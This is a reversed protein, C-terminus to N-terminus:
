PTLISWGFFLYIESSLRQLGYSKSSTKVGQRHFFNIYKIPLHISTSKPLFIM